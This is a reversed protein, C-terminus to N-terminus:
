IEVRFCIVGNKKYRTVKKASQEEESILAAAVSVPRKWSFQKYEYDEKSSEERGMQYTFRNGDKDLLNRTKVGKMLMERKTSDKGLKTPFCVRAIESNEYKRKYLFSSIKPEGKLDIIEINM